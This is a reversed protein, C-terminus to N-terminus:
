VPTITSTGAQPDCCYNGGCGGPDVATDAKEPTAGGPSEAVCGQGAKEEQVDALRRIMAKAVKICDDVAALDSPWRSLYHPLAMGAYWELLTMGPTVAQSPPAALPSAQRRGGGFWKGFSELPPNRPPISFSPMQKIDEAGKLQDLEERLKKKEERYTTILWAMNTITNKMATPHTNVIRVQDQKESFWEPSYDEPLGELRILNTLGDNVLHTVKYSRKTDKIGPAYCPSGVDARLSPYVVDGVKIPEEDAM